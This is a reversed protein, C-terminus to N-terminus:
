ATASATVYTGPTFIASSSFLPRLSMATNQFYSSPRPLVVVGEGLGVVWCGWWVMVM